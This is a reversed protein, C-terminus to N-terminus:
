RAEPAPPVRRPALAAVAALLQGGNFPKALFGDAASDGVLGDGGILLVAVHDLAVDDRIARSLRRGDLGPIGIDSIVLDVEGNRLLHLAELGDGSEVVRTVPPTLHRLCGRLYLRMDADDDVLLVTRSPVSTTM